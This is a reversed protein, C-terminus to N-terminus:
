PEGDDAPSSIDRLLRELQSAMREAQQPGFGRLMWTVFRHAAPELEAYLARGAATLHVHVARSDSSGVRRECLGDREMQDIVRSMVSQEAGSLETITGVRSGDVANLISLVQWRAITLGRPRLEEMWAANVKSTLRNLLYPILAVSPPSFSPKSASM